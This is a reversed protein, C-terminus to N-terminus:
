DVDCTVWGDDTKLRHLVPVNLVAEAFCGRAASAVLAKQDELSSETDMDIDLHFRGTEATYPDRPRPGPKLQWEFRGAVSLGDVRVGCARSFTRVQTMFCTVIGTAFIGLPKPATEEGGHAPAEDSALEWDRLQWPETMRVSVDNRRKGSAVADLTFTVPLVQKAQVGDVQELRDPATTGAYTAVSDM